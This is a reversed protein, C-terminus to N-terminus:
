TLLSIFALSKGLALRSFLKLLPAEQNLDAQMFWELLEKISVPVHDSSRGFDDGDIAFLFLRYEIPNSPNESRFVRSQPKCFWARWRRGLLVHDNELLWRLVEQRAFVTDPLRRPFRAFSPIGLTLFRDHGFKRAFRYSPEQGMPSLRLTLLPGRLQQESFNLTAGLNVGNFGTKAKAWATPDSRAPMKQENRAAISEM